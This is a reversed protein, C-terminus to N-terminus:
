DGYRERLAVYGPHGRLEDFLLVVDVFPFRYGGPEELMVRLEAIAEDHLGVQSLEFAYWLRSDAAKMLDGKTQSHLRRRHEEIWHRTEAADGRASHYVRKMASFTISAAQDPDTGYTELLEGARDLAREALTADPAVYTYAANYNLQQWIPDEPGPDPPTDAIVDLLMEADYAGFAALFAVPLDGISVWGKGRLLDAARRADGNCELEYQAAYGLAVPHDRSLSLLTEAHRRAAECDDLSLALEILGSYTGPSRPELRWISQMIRYGEEYRGLRRNLFVKLSLAYVNGAIRGGLADLTELARAYEQMQRYQYEAWVIEAELLGPRLERARALAELAADSAEKEFLNGSARTHAAALWAWAQAFDPDLRVAEEFAAVADRDEWGGVGSAL